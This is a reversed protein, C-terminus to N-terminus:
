PADYGRAEIFTELEAIRADKAKIEKQLEEVVRNPHHEVGNIRIIAGCTVYGVLDVYDPLKNEDIYAITRNDPM